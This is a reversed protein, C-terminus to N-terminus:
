TSVKLSGRGLAGDAAMQLKHSEKKALNKSKYTDKHKFDASTITAGRRIHKTKTKM